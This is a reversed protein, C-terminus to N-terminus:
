LTTATTAVYSNSLKVCAQSENAWLTVLGSSSYRGGMGAGIIVVAASTTDENGVPVQPWPKDGGGM